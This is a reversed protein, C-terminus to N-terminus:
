HAAADWWWTKASHAVPSARRAAQQVVTSVQFNDSDAIVTTMDGRVGGAVQVVIHRGGYVRWAAATMLEDPVDVSAPTYEGGTAFARPRWGAQAALGDAQLLASVMALDFVNELDSFVADRAVLDAFHRTFLGAFKVNAGTAAGTTTRTGDAKLIQDESLCRVSDGALSFAYGSETTQIAEYGVAMWWRLADVGQRGRQESRTLLEFYSKMGPAGPVEGIGIQKMRYDAEVIVRAVRSDAPVGEVIVNQLGLQDELRRTFDAANRVTLSRRNRDAFKNLAQVQEQKPDISCRFFGPGDTAFTQTLVVLDDLHVVPRGDRASVVRGAEDFSWDGAPGGVVIDGSEPFVFLYDVASLGALYRAEDPIYEGNKLLEAVYRELRPISILRLKSPVSVDCNRNSQKALEAVQELRSNDYMLIVSAMVAPVGVFVGQDFVSITGGDGDTEAWRGPPTTQEQILTILADFDALPSGGELDRAFRAARSETETDGVLRAADRLQAAAAALDGAEASARASLRLLQSEAPDPDPSPQKSAFAETSCTFVVAWLLLPLCLYTASDRVM